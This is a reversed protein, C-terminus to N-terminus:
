EVAVQQAAGDAINKSDQVGHGPTGKRKRGKLLVLAAIAAVVAVVIGVILIYGDYGPLGLFGTTQNTKGKSPSSTFTISQSFAVGSVKITGSSPNATYGNVSGVTFAYSGNPEVFAVMAMTASKTSGNLTVSWSTGARLGTETFTVAYTTGTSAKAFALSVAKAAGSVIVSGSAPTATYGAVVGVTYSYTGNVENFSITSGTSTYTTTGVTVSWNTGSPLGTESFTLSYQGPPLATFTVPQSVAMGIVKVTGSIPSASYGAIAGITFSYTGNLEMFVLNGLGKQTTSNLTVSWFTSSPLGSRSFTVPYITQTLPYFTVTQTVGGGSVTVNGSRPFTNYGTVAGVTFSYTGNPEIFSNTVGTSNQTTSGVTVFWNTGSPLGTESFNLAYTTGTGSQTFRISVVQPNGNVTVNGSSPKASYGSVDGVSYAYTGNLYNSFVNSTTTSLNTSGNLDLSWLTGNPLGSAMFTIPYGTATFSISVSQGNGNVTVSGAQPTARYGSAPSVSFAYTGNREPFAMSSGAWQLDTGNLSVAWPTGNPLGSEQFTVNYSANRSLSIISVTGQGANCVFAQQGVPDVAVSLPNAGVSISATIRDNVTSLVSVNGANTGTMTVIAEASAPDYVINASAAGLYIGKVYSDNADSLINLYTTDAVLIQGAAGDYALGEPQGAGVSTVETNNSDSIVGIYGWYPDSVFVEGRGRDYALGWYGGKHGGTFDSVSVNAVVTDNAGSIVSVFPSDYNAVYVLGNGSDYTVGVPMGGVSINKVVTDNSDSIVQVTNSRSSAVFIEGTTNDYAIGAAGPAVPIAALVDDTKESIAFVMGPGDPIPATVRPFLTSVSTSSVFLESKGSDFTAFNPYYSLPIEAVVKNLVDSIVTVNDFPQSTAVYTEGTDEDFVAGVPQQGDLTIVSVLSFNSVSVVSVNLFDYSAVLLEGLSSDYAIGTPDQPVRITAKLAHTSDSIVSVSGENVSTGLVNAVFVDGLQYASVIADPGNGVPVTATLKNTLASIVSVNNSARNAVYVEDTRSDFAIARPNYGVNVNAIVKNTSDSIVTVNNGSTNLNGANAVFIEGQVPDYTVAIPDTGVTINALVQDLSGSLVLVSKSGYDAIYFDNKASDYAIGMPGAGGRATQTVQHAIGSILSVTNSSYGTVAIMDTSPDLALQFPFVTNSALFNGRVTTRNSLVASDIVYPSGVAGSLGRLGM